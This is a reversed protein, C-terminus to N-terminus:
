FCSLLSLLIGTACILVFNFSSRSRKSSSTTYFSEPFLWCTLAIAAVMQHQDWGLWEMVEVERLYPWPAKGQSFAFMCVFFVVELQTLALLCIHSLRFPWLRLWGQNRGGVM